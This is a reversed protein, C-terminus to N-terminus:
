VAGPRRWGRGGPFSLPPPPLHSADVSHWAQRVHCAVDQAGRSLRRQCLDCRGAGGDDHAARRRRLLCGDHLHHHVVLHLRRRLGAAKASEAAADASVPPAHLVLHQRDAVTRRRAAGGAGRKCTEPAPRCDAVDRPRDAQM